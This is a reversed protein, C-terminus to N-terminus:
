PQEGNGNAEPGTTNSEPGTARSEPETANLEPGTANLDSYDSAAWSQTRNGGRDQARVLAESAREVLSQASDGVNLGTAGASFSVRLGLHQTMTAAAARLSDAQRVASATETCPLILIFRSDDIRYYSDFDRVHKHLLRGLQHLFMDQDTSALSDEMPDPALQIVALATGERESRRIETSLDTHLHVQSSAQTLADTRRLPALQRSKVERLYVFLGTLLASLLLLPILQHRIMGLGGPTLASIAMLGLVFVLSLAGAWRVPWLLFFLLPVLLNWFVFEPFAGLASSLAVIAVALSIARALPLAWRPPNQRVMFWGAAMLVTLALTVLGSALRGGGVLTLTFLMLALAAYQLLRGISQRDEADAM